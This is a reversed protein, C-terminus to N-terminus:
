DNHSLRIKDYEAPSLCQRHTGDKLYIQTKAFANMRIKEVEDDTAPITYDYGTIRALKTLEDTVKVAVRGVEKGDETTYWVVPVGHIRELYINVPRSSVIPENFRYSAISKKKGKQKQQKQQKPQPATSAIPKEKKPKNNDNSSGDDGDTDATEIIEEQQQEQIIDQEEIEREQETITGDDTAFSSM